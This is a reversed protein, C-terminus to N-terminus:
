PSLTAATECTYSVALRMDAPSKDAEMDCRNLAASKLARECAAIVTAKFPEHADAKVTEMAAEHCAWKADGAHAATPVSLLIV